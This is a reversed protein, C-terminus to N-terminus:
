YVKRVVSGPFRDSIYEEVGNEKMYIKCVDLCKPIAEDWYDWTHGGAWEEYEYHFGKDQMFDRFKRNGEILADETGCCQYFWPLPKGSAVLQEVNYYNDEMTGELKDACDPGFAAVARPDVGNEKYMSQFEFVASMPACVAFMDPNTLALKTCGFGGMSFGSIFNKERKTSFHFLKQCYPILEEIIYTYFKFGYKMDTYFSNDAQPMVVAISRATAFREISMSKIWDFPTANVGHLMYCVPIDDECQEPIIVNFNVSRGQVKSRHNCQFIAM